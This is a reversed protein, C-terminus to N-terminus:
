VERDPKTRVRRHRGGAGVPAAHLRGLAAGLVTQIVKLPDLEPGRRHRGAFALAFAHGIVAPDGVIDTDDAAASGCLCRRGGCGKHRALNPIDWARQLGIKRRRAGNRHRSLRRRRRDRCRPPRIRQWARAMPSPYSSSGAASRPTRAAWRRRYRSKRRLHRLANRGVLAVHVGDKLVVRQKGM